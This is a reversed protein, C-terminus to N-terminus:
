LGMKHGRALVSDKDNDSGVILDCRDTPHDLTENSMPELDDDDIVGRRVLCRLAKLAEVKVDQAVDDVATLSCAKLGADVVRERFAGLDNDREIGIALMIRVVDRRQNIGDYPTLAVHAQSGPEQTPGM